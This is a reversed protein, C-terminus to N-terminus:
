RSVSYGRRELENKLMSDNFQYVHHTRVEDKILSTLMKENPKCLDDRFRIAKGQACVFLRRRLAAKKINHATQYSMGTNKLLKEFVVSYRPNKSNEWIMTFVSVLQSIRLPNTLSLKPTHVTRETVESKNIM